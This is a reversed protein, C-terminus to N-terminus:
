WQGLCNADEEEFMDLGYTIARIAVLRASMGHQTKQNRLCSRQLLGTSMGFESQFRSGKVVTQM